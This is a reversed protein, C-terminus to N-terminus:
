LTKIEVGDPRLQIRYLLVGSKDTTRELTYGMQDLRNMVEKTMKPSDLLIGAYKWVTWQDVEVFVRKNVTGISKGQALRIHRQNEQVFQLGSVTESIALAPNTVVRQPEKGFMNIVEM